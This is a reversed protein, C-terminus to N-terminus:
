LTYSLGITFSRGYRYNFADADTGENFSGNKNLDHYFVLRQAFVDGVVFKAQLRKFLTKSLSIDLVTRPNEWITQNESTGVFAIRRGVRNVNVAVDVLKPNNYNVGMNFVYPSQGQLPRKSLGAGSNTLNVQSNILALNGYLTMDKFINTGALKDLGILLLRTEIEVGINEASSANQYSFNRFSPNPVVIMEVPNTFRKYFPNVSITQAASPFFEWKFDINDILARVLTDNGIIISNYNVEYFALPAFERFEPRSLTKSYSFRLNQNETLEYIINLSPLVDTVTKNIDVKKGIAESSVRQNFQEIRAGWIMRFRNTIKNDFMVFGANIRSSATYSDSGQTTERQFFLDSAINASSFVSDPGQLGAVDYKSPDLNNNDYTFLFNRANFTRTRVQHFGGFKVESKKFMKFPVSVEYKASPSNEQLQSSFRGTQNPTFANADPNLQVIPKPYVTDGIQKDAQYILRKFDPLSRSIATYGLTYKVKIKSATIFHEGTFQGTYMKSQQYQYLYDNFVKNEQDVFPAAHNVYQVGDRKITQDEGNQTYLNKFSFKNNKGLKMSLNLVGGLNVSRRYNSYNYTKYDATKFDMSRQEDSLPPENVVFPTYRYNNSYAIAGLVGFENHESKFRKSGSMNFSVNPAISSEQTPKFNNDFLKTQDVLQSNAANRGEETKMVGSPIGRKSDYGLWDTSSANQSSFGEKFTTLSHAGLSLGVTYQDEDPIDKTTIQIFGGAFDAPMDPTATKVIMMNDLVAAPILDLSFAKRDSESSALPAGNIFAMNYRDGLGRVVAFKNDQISAGSVRKIVDATTRDPTKKILDASVGSAVSVSNRQQILVANASEKKVEGRIVIENLEKTAEELSINLIATEKAKVEIGSLVKKKYSIYSVVINYTGASVNNILFKGEFDTAAGISTGEIQVSVGILEEGTKKDIIKGGIRGTQASVSIVIMSILLSFLYKLRVTIM